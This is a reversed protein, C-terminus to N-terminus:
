SLRWPIRRMGYKCVSFVSFLGAKNKTITVSAPDQFAGPWQACGQCPAAELYLCVSLQIFGCQVWEAQSQFCVTSLISNVQRCM